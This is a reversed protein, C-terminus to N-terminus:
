IMSHIYHFSMRMFEAKRQLLFVKKKTFTSNQRLPTWPLGYYPINSMLKHGSMPEWGNQIKFLWKSFMSQPTGCSENQKQKSTNGRQLPSNFPFWEEISYIVYLKWSKWCKKSVKASFLQLMPRSMSLQICKYFPRYDLCTRNLNRIWKSVLSQYQKPLMSCSKSPIAIKKFCQPFSTRM